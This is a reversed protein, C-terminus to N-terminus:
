PYLAYTETFQKHMCSREKEIETSVKPPTDCELLPPRHVEVAVSPSQDIVINPLNPSSKAMSKIMKDKLKVMTLQHLSKRKPKKITVERETKKKKELTPINSDSVDGGLPKSSGQECYQNQKLIRSAHLTERLPTMFEYEDSDSDHMREAM